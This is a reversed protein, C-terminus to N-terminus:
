RGLGEQKDPPPPEPKAGSEAARGAKPFGIRKGHGDYGLRLLEGRLFNRITEKGPEAAARLAMNLAQASIGGFSAKLRAVAIQVLTLSGITAGFKLAGVPGNHDILQRLLGCAPRKEALALLTKESSLVEEVRQELLIPGDPASEGTAALAERLKPAFADIDTLDNDWFEVDAIIVPVFMKLLFPVLFAGGALALTAMAWWTWNALEM